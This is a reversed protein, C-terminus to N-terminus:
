WIYLQFSGCTLEDGLTHSIANHCCVIKLSTVSLVRHLIFHLLDATNRFICRQSNCFREETLIEDMKEITNTHAVLFLAISPIPCRCLM